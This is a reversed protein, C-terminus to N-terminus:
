RMIMLDGESVSTTQVPWTKTKMKKAPGAVIPEEDVDSHGESRDPDGRSDGETEAEGQKMM